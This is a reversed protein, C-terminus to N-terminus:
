SSSRKPAAGRPLPAHIRQGERKLDLALRRTFYNSKRLIPLHPFHGAHFSRSSGAGLAAVAVRRRNSEVRVVVSLGFLAGLLEGTHYAKQARAAQGKSLRM